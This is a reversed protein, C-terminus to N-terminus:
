YSPVDKKWAHGKNVHVIAELEEAFVNTSNGIKALFSYLPYGKIVQKYNKYNYHNITVKFDDSLSPFYHKLEKASYEKWHHGYTIQNLIDDVNTGIGRLSIINKVSRVLSPLSLSNPTSIYIDGGSKVVKHLKKWFSVPNFTIHELIETFLILDYKEETASLAQLSPLDNEVIKNIGFEERRKEVFDMSWFETVDMCDVEFGLKRLIISTHLYHSGIDLIVTKASDYHKEVYNAMRRFRDKHFYFYDVDKTEGTALVLEELEQIIDDVSKKNM